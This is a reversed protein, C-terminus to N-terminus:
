GRWLNVAASGCCGKGARCGLSIQRVCDVEMAPERFNRVDQFGQYDQFYRLSRAPLAAPRPTTCSVLNITGDCVKENATVLIKRQVKITVGFRTRMGVNVVGYNGKKQRFGAAEKIQRWSSQTKHDKYDHLSSDNSHPFRQRKESTSQDLLARKM